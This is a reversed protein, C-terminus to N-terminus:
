LLVFKEQEVFARAAARGALRFADRSSDVPHTEVSTLTCRFVTIPTLPTVLMTDLVGFWLADLWRERECEAVTERSNPADVEFVLADHPAFSLCVRAFLFRAGMARKCLGEVERTSTIGNKSLDLFM